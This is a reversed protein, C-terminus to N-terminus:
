QPSKPIKTILTDGAQYNVARYLTQSELKASGEEVSIVLLLNDYFPKTNEGVLLMGVNLRDARGKNVTYIKKKNDSEVKTVVAKIPTDHLYSNWPEPLDPNGAVAKESDGRRLFFRTTLYNGNIIRQRPEIGFNVAATFLNIKDLDLLYIRGGWRVVQMEYETRIVEAPLDSGKYQYLKRYAEIRQKPDLLNYQNLTKKTIKFHLLNDRLAYTGSEEWVPDCCDSFTIYEYKGDEMIKFIAGVYGSSYVYEGVIEKPNPPAVAPINNQALGPSILLFFIIPLYLIRKM